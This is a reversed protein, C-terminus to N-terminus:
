RAARSQRIEAFRAIVGLGALTATTFSIAAVTLYVTLKFRDNMSVEYAAVSMATVLCVAAVALSANRLRKPATPTAAHQKPQRQYWRWGAVALIAMGVVSSGMQMLDHVYLSRDGLDFAHWELWGLGAAAEHHHTFSDWLVHSGAGVLIAACLQGLGSGPRLPPSWARLPGGLHALRRPLLMVVGPVVLWSCLALAALALPLNLLVLGHLQHSITRGGGLRLFYEFDPSAAGVALGCFPLSTARSLPLAAAAHAITFPMFLVM